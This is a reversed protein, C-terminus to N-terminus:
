VGGQAGTWAGPESTPSPVGRRAVRLLDGLIDPAQAWVAAGYVLIGTVICIALTVLTPLAGALLMKLLLVCAVMVVSGVIPVVYQRAYEGIDIDILRRVALLHLPALVYGRIVYAAAVAVIGWRVAIAFAVVNAVANLAALWFRWSAKGTALMVADNFYFVSHLIGIMCLVQLVPISPAWQDGYATLVLEPAVAALGLFAPFAILSTYRTAVYFGSRMRSTDAQVRSFMPFAVRNLVDVLLGMVNKLPLTYAITYFGLAVPGLFWGILLDDARRNVFNVLNHGLVNASFSFLDGFHRRSVRLGPRWESVRWLVITGVAANVLMQIVLSWVGMGALAATIGAAGGISTALLSRKALQDFALERELISRQTGQLGNLILSLSMLQVIPALDPERFAAAVPGAALVSAFSLVVGTALSVWFASDLHEVEVTERQVLAAGLGQQVLISVLSIYVLAMAVLGFSEPAILRALVVMVVFSFFTSGWADVASWTVARSVTHRNATV